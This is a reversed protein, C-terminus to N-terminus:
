DCVSRTKKEGLTKLSLPKSQYSVECNALEGQSSALKLLFLHKYVCSDDTHIVSFSQSVLATIKAGVSSWVEQKKASFCYDLHKKEKGNARTVCSKCLLWLDQKNITIFSMEELSHTISNRINFFAVRLMKSTGSQLNPSFKSSYHQNLLFFFPLFFRANAFLCIAAPTAPPDATYCSEATPQQLLCLSFGPRNVRTEPHCLSASIPLASLLARESETQKLWGKRKRM